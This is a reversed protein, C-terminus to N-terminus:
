TAKFFTCRYKKRLRYPLQFTNLIDMKMKDTCFNTANAVETISKFM